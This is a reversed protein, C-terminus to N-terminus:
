AHWILHLDAWTIFGAPPSLLRPLLTTPPDYIKVNSTQLIPSRYSIINM